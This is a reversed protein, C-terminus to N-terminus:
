LMNEMKINYAIIHNKWKRKSLSILDRLQVPRDKAWGTGVTAM